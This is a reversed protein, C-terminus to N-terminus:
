DRTVSLLDTTAKSPLYSQLSTCHFPGLIRKPHRIHENDQSHYHNRPQLCRNYTKVLNIDNLFVYTPLYVVFFALFSYNCFDLSNIETLLRSPVLNLTAAQSHEIEQGRHHNKQIQMIYTNMLSYM